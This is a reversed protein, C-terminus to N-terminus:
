FFGLSKNVGHTLVIVEGLSQERDSHIKALRRSRELEVIRSFEETGLVEGNDMLVDSGTRAAVAIEGFSVRGNGSLDVKRILTMIDFLDVANIEYPRGNLHFKVTTYAIQRSAETTLADSTMAGYLRMGDTINHLGGGQGKTAQLRGFQRKQEDTLDVARCHTVFESLELQMSEWPGWVFSGDDILARKWNVLLDAIRAREASTFTEQRRRANELESHSVKGDGNDDAKPFLM